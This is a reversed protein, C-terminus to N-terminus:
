LVQRAELWDPLLRSSPGVCLLWVQHVARTIAVHLLRRAPPNLPYTEQDCDAIIVYDFELGKVQLIDTIEIGPAFSFEQDRVRRLNPIAMRQLSQYILDAQHAYRTLVACNASPEAAVLDKLADALFTASEGPGQFTFLEVPAGARPADLPEEPALPGLVARALEMITRSSRYSVKLPAVQIHEPDLFSFLQQWSRFDGLEIVKQAIDGALTVPNGKPVIELLTVLELPSLDQVEDVVLHFIRATRKRRDLLPGRLLQHLRLLITEDEADLLPTEQGSADTGDMRTFAMRTCWRHVQEIEASSFEGPAHRDFSKRLWSRSTFLEDFLEVVNADPHVAAAELLIPVLASHLKLRTVLAPTEESYHNPLHPYLRRRHERAWHDYTSVPVGNVGLAPLLQSIYSVLARNFVIVLTNKPAFRRPDQFALYAVRHLAVTTKGSGASGQIAILGQHPSTILAFQDEDLLSAIEPLHKDQRELRRGGVSPVRGKIGLLPRTTDPRFASGEGGRLAPREELADVWGNQDLLYTHDRTSVRVLRGDQISVTRRVLVVGTRERGAIDIEYEDGEECEYFVRSIPADRWDVVTMDPTIFTARGILVTRRRGDEDQLELHGFYPKLPDIHDQRALSQFAALRSLRHMQEVISAQDEWLREEDLSDRLQVLENRYDRPRPAAPLNDLIETVRALLQLEEIVEIPPASDTRFSSTGPPTTM